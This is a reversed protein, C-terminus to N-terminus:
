PCAGWAALLVALDSGNVTNDGTLDAACAGTMDCPNFSGDLIELADDRGNMNCDVISAVSAYSGSGQLEAGTLDMLRVFSGGDLAIFDNISTWVGGTVAEDTREDAMANPTGDSTWQITDAITNGNGFSVPAFYIQIAYATANVGAFAGGITSINIEDAGSADNNFHVYLSEGPGISVGNLGGSASYRRVVAADHSCFRWGSLDESTDGFNHLEVVNTSLNVSRFQVDRPAASAASAGMALACAGTVLTGTNMTRRM